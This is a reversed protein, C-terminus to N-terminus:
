DRVNECKKLEQLLGEYSPNEGHIQVIIKRQHIGEPEITVSLKDEPLLDEILEPWEVVTVGDRAPLYDEVGLDIMEDLSEIRYTDIHYLKYEGAYENIITFTPSTANSDIGFGKVIGKTLTTKGAGLEGKLCIVMGPVLNKGIVQGLNLTQEESDVHLIIVSGCRERGLNNECRLKLSYSHVWLNTM